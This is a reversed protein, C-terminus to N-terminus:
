QFCKRPFMKGAAGRRRRAILVAVSALLVGASAPEPVPTVYVTGSQSTFSAGPTVADFNLFITNGLDVEATQESNVSNLGQQRVQAHIVGNLDFTLHDGVFTSILATPYDTTSDIGDVLFEQFFSFASANPAFPDPNAMAGIGQHGVILYASIDDNTGLGGSIGKHVTLTSRLMVPTGAALTASTITITDQLQATAEGSAWPQLPNGLAVPDGALTNYLLVGPLLAAHATTYLHLAGGGASASAAANMSSGWTIQGYEEENTTFNYGMDYLDTRSYLNDFTSNHSSSSIALPVPGDTDINAIFGADNRAYGGANALTTVGYGGDFVNASCVLPCALAMLAFSARALWMERASLKSCVM